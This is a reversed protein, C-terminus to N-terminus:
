GPKKHERELIEPIRLAIRLGEICGQTKPLLSDHTELYDRKREIEMLIRERMLEWGRSHLLMQIEGADDSDPKFMPSFAPRFRSSDRGM